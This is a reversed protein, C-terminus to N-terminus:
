PRTEHAVGGLSLPLGAPRLGLAGRLRLGAQFRLEARFKLESARFNSQAGTRRSAPGLSKVVGRPDPAGRQHALRIM